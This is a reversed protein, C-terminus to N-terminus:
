YIPHTSSLSLSLDNDGVPFSALPQLPMYQQCPKCKIM